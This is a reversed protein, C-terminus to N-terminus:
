HQGAPGRVDGIYPHCSRTIAHDAHVALANQLTKQGLQRHPKFHSRPWRLQIRHDHIHIFLTAPSPGDGPDRLNFLRTRISRCVCVVADSPRRAGSASTLRALSFPTPTSATASWSVVSPTSPAMLAPACPITSTM